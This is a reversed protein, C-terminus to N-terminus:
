SICAIFYVHGYYYSAHCNLNLLLDLIKSRVFLANIIDIVNVYVIRDPNCVIDLLLPLGGSPFHHSPECRGLRNRTCLHCITDAARLSVRISIM